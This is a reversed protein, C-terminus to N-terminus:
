ILYLVGRSCRLVGRWAYIACGHGTYYVAGHMYQVDMDLTTCRATCINSMWTWHLVGRRAYIACGHGTYYVAGHMYQVDMDLTTCWATCINCM